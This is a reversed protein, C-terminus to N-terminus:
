AAEARRAALGAMATAVVLYAAVAAAPALVDVSLGASGVQALLDSGAGLPAFRLIDPPVVIGAMQEGIMLAVVAAIGAVQSRTVFAAAFGISAQMVVSLWGAALIWPISEVGAGLPDSADVGAAQAAVAVLGLGLLYLLVWAVLAVVAIAAMTGVVYRARSEGRAVAVRFTGWTWESGAITGGYAAAAIGAFTSLMAAVSGYADPFRLVDEIGAQGPASMATRAAMAVGAYVLVLLGALIALTRVSAPRRVLKLLSVSLLRM